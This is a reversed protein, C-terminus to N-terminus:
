GRGREGERMLVRCVDDRHKDIVELRQGHTGEGDGDRSLIVWDLRGGRADELESALTYTDGTM